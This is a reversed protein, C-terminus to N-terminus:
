QVPQPFCPVKGPNDCLQDQFNFVLNGQCPMSPLANGKWCPIFRNCSQPDKNLGNPRPRCLPSDFAGMFFKKNCDDFISDKNVCVQQSQSFLLTYPCSLLVPFSLDGDCNYMQSCNNPHRIFHAGMRGAVNKCLEVVNIPPNYQGYVIAIIFFAVFVSLVRQM